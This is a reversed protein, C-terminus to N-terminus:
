PMLKQRLESVTQHEWTNYGIPDNLFQRWAINLLTSLSGSQSNYATLHQTAEEVDEMAADFLNAPHYDDYNRPKKQKVTQLYQNWRAEMERMETSWGCRKLVRFIHNTRAADAPHELGIAYVNPSNLCLHLNCWGYAPGVLRAALTDCAVEEAWRWEWRAIIETIVKPDLPRSIRRIQNRLHNAHDRLAQKFRVGHLPRGIREPIIHGSEHYFDPV